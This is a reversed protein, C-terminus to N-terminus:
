RKKKKALPTKKVEHKLCEVFSNYALKVETEKDELYSEDCGSNEFATVFATFLQRFRKLSGL